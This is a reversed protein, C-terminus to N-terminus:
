YRQYLFNTNTTQIEFNNADCINIKNDHMKKTGPFVPGLCMYSSLFPAPTFLFKLVISYKITSIM